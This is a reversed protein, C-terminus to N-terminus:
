LGLGKKRSVTWVQALSHFEGEEGFPDVGCRKARDSLTRDFVEGVEIASCSSASVVCTVESEELDAILDEYSVCFVPYELDLPLKGLESDRWKKIHALHLDGFVLSLAKGEGFTSSILDIGLKLREVYSESTGRHLPVGVLPMQLHSAQRMVQSIHVEQHAVVRTQADFTTLLVINFDQEPGSEARQRVLARLALFSDKGGSFFLIKTRKADQPTAFSSGGGQVQHLFSPQKIREAKLDPRVNEHNFPCHRCGSGCCKGRKKHALATFVNYGTAPDIYDMRGDECAEEHRSSWCDRENIIDEIDPNPTGRGSGTTATAINIHAWGEGQKPAFHLDQVAEVVRRDVGGYACQAVINAGGLLSPGPRAFYLDGDCAYLKGERSARLKSLREPAMLADRANRELNFGCCALLVVDPDAEYINEWTVQKSKTGNWSDSQPASQSGIKVSECGAAEIMQPIWHGADYPPDLWELLLVRPRKRNRNGGVAKAVTDGLLRLSERFEAEMRFGREPVGCAAAVASFTSAVEDLTEPELSLLQVRANGDRGDALARRVEGTSPACVGCLDQTLVITPAARALACRDIPYLTQVAEALNPSTVPDADTSRGEGEIKAEETEVAGRSPRKCAAGAATASAAAAKVKADIDRQTGEEYDILSRTIIAPGRSHNGGGSCEYPIECEHTVGVLNSSLGLAAVIDTASPLLSVIRHESTVNTAASSPPPLTM